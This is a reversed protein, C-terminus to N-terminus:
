LLSIIELERSLNKESQAELQQHFPETKYLRDMQLFHQLVKLRGARFVGDPYIGYELRINKRYVDYEDWPQGLISLDADTLLNTDSDESLAHKKTALIHSKCREIKESLYGISALAAAAVEASKDENNNDTVYAVVDYVVDHYFVAFLLTDWDEALSQLPTLAHIIQELHSLNHFCREPQTYATQLQLWLQDALAPEAAHRLVLTRFEQQIM